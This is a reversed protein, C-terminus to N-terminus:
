GRVSILVLFIEQPYLRGIGLSSLRVVKMHLKKFYPLMLSRSCERGSLAQLQNSKTTTTITATATTITYGLMVNSGYPM